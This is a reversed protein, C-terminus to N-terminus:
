CSEEVKFFFDAASYYWRFYVSKSGEEKSVMKKGGDRTSLDNRGWWYSQLVLCCFSFLYNKTKTKWFLAQLLLHLPALSCGEAAWWGLAAPMRRGPTHQSRTTGQMAIWLLLAALAYWLSDWGWSQTSWHFARSLRILGYPLIHNHGGLGSSQAVPLGLLRKMLLPHILFHSGTEWPQDSLHLVGLEEGGPSDAAWLSSM